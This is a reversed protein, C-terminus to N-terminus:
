LTMASVREEQRKTLLWQVFYLAKRHMEHYMFGCFLFHVNSRKQPQM